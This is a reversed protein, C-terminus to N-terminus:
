ESDMGIHEGGTTEKEHFRQSLPVAGNRKECGTNQTKSCSCCDVTNIVVGNRVKQTDISQGGEPQTSPPPPPPAQLLQLPPPPPPPQPLNFQQFQLLQQQQQLQQQLQAQQQADLHQTLQQQLQAQVFLVHEHAIFASFVIFKLLFVFKCILCQRNAM